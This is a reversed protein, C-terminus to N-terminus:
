NSFVVMEPFPMKWQSHDFDLLFEKLEVAKQLYSLEDLDLNEKRGM